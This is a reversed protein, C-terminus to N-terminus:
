WLFFFFFFVHHFPYFRLVERRFSFPLAFYGTLAVEYLDEVRSPRPGSSSGSSHQRPQPPQMGVARTVLELAPAPVGEVSRGQLDCWMFVVMDTATTAAAAAAASAGAASAGAAAAAAVAAGFATTEPLQAESAIAAAPGKPSTAGSRGVLSIEDGSRLEYCQHKRLAINQHAPTRVHTGNTSLDELFM